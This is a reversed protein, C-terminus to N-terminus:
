RIAVLREGLLQASAILAHATGGDARQSRVIRGKRKVGNGAREVVRHNLHPKFGNGRQDGAFAHLDTVDDRM